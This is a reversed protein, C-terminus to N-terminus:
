TSPAPTRSPSLTAQSPSSPGATSPKSPRSNTQHDDTSHERYGYLTKGQLVTVESTSWGRYEECVRDAENISAITEARWSRADDARSKKEELEAKLSALLADQEEIDREALQLQERADDLEAGSEGEADAKRKELMALEEDLAQSKEILAPLVDEFSKEVQALLTSDNELEQATDQTGSIVNNLLQSRWNHWGAKSQLRANTKLDRLQADMISKEAASAGFYEHFLPPQYELVEEELNRVDTKVSNIYSKM